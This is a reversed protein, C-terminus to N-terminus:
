EKAIISAAILCSGASLGHPICVEHLLRDGFEEEIAIMLDRESLKSGRRKYFKKLDEGLGNFLIKSDEVISVPSNMHLVGKHLGESLARRMTFDWLTNVKFEITSFKRIIYYAGGGLSILVPLLNIILTTLDM